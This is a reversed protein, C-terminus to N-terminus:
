REGLKTKPRVNGLPGKGGDFAAYAGKRGNLEDGFGGYSLMKADGGVMIM